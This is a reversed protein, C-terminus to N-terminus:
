SRIAEVAFAEHVSQPYTRVHTDPIEQFYRSDDVSLVAVGNFGAAELCHAVGAGTLLSRHDGWQYVLRNVARLPLLADREFEHLSEEFALYAQVRDDGHGNILQGVLLGDPCVIRIPCGPRLIRHCERLLSALDDLFLHELVHEALIANVSGTSFPLGRRVDARFVSPGGELDLGIWDRDAM